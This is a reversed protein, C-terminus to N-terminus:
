IDCTHATQQENGGNVQLGSHVGRCLHPDGEGRSEDEEYQESVGYGFVAALM